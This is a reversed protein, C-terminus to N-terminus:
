TQAANALATGIHEALERVDWGNYYCRETGHSVTISAPFHNRIARVIAEHDVQRQASSPRVLNVQYLAHCRSCEVNNAHTKSIEGSDDDCEMAIRFDQSQCRECALATDCSLELALNSM